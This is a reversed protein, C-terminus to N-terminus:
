YSQSIDNKVHGRNIKINNSYSTAERSVDPVFLVFYGQSVRGGSSFLMGKPSVSSGHKLFTFIFLLYIFLYFATTGRALLYRIM